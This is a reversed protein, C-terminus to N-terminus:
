SVVHLKVDAFYSYQDKPSAWSLEHGGFFTQFMIGIFGAPKKTLEQAEPLSPESDLLNNLLLSGGLLESIIDTPEAAAVPVVPPLLTEVAEPVVQATKTAKPKKTKSKAASAPVAEVSVESRYLVEDSHLVLKDNIWKRYEDTFILDVHLCSVINFGGDAQGPTNLWVDSRM